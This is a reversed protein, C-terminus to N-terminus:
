SLASPRVRRFGMTGDGVPTPPARHLNFYVTESGAGFMSGALYAAENDELELEHQREVLYKGFSPPAKKSAQYLRNTYM